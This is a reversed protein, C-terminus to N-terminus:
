SSTPACTTTDAPSSTPDTHPTEERHHILKNRAEDCIGSLRLLLNTDTFELRLADGPALPAGVIIEVSDDAPHLDTSIPCDPNVRTYQDTTIFDTVIKNRVTDSRVPHQNETAPLPKAAHRSRPCLGPRPTRERAPKARLRQVQERHYDGILRDHSEFSDGIM